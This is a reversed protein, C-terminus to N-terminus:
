KEKNEMRKLIETKYAKYYFQERRSLDQYSEVLTMRCLADLIQKDTMQTILWKEYDKLEFGM